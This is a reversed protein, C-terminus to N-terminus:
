QLNKIRRFHILVSPLVVSIDPFLKASTLNTKHKICSVVGFASAPHAGPDPLLEADRWVRKAPPNVSGLDVFPRPGPRRRILM